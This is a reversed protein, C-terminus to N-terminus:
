GVAPPDVVEGLVGFGWLREGRKWATGLEFVEDRLTAIKALASELAPDIPGDDLRRLYTDGTWGYLGGTVRGAEDLVVVWRCKGNTSTTCVIREWRGPDADRVEFPAGGLHSGAYEAANGAQVVAPVGFRTLDAETGDGFRFWWRELPDPAHDEESFFPEDAEDYIVLAGSLREGVVPAPASPEVREAHAIEALVEAVSTARVLDALSRTAEPLEVAYCPLGSRAMVTLLPEGGVLARRSAVTVVRRVPALADGFRERDDAAVSAVLAAVATGPDDEAGAFVAPTRLVAAAVLADAPAPVVLVASRAPEDLGLKAPTILGCHKSGTGPRSDVRFERLNGKGPAFRYALTLRLDDGEGRVGLVRGNRLASPALLADLTAEDAVGGLMTEALFERVRARTPVDASALRDASAFPEVSRDAAPAAGTATQTLAAMGALLSTM